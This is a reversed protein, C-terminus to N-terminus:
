AKLDLPNFLLLALAELTLWVVVVVYYMNPFSCFSYGLILLDSNSNKNSDLSLGSTQSIAVERRM